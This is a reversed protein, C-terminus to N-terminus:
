YGDQEVEDLVIFDTIQKNDINEDPSSSKDYDVTIPSITIIPNSFKFFNKSSFKKGNLSETEKDVGIRLFDIWFQLIRKEVDNYMWKNPFSYHLKKADEGHIVDIGNSTFLRLINLFIFYGEDSKEVSIRLGDHRVYNVKGNELYYVKSTRRKTKYITKIERIEETLKLHPFYICNLKRDYFCGLEKAKCILFNKILFTLRPIWDIDNLNISEIKFSEVTDLKVFNKAKTKSIPLLSYIHKNHLFAEGKVNFWFDEKDFELSAGYWIENPFHLVKFINSMLNESVRNIKVSEDLLDKDINLDKNANKIYDIESALIEKSGAVIKTNNFFSNYENYDYKDFDTKIDGSLKKSIKEILSRKADENQKIDDFVKDWSDPGILKRVFIYLFFRENPNKNVYALFFKGLEPLLDSNFLSLDTNKCEIWIENSKGQILFRKAIMKPQIFKLDATQGDVTSDSTVVFGKVSMYETVKDKYNEGIRHLSEKSGALKIITM